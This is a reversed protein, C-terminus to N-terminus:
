KIQILSCWSLINNAFTLEQLLSTCLPLRQLMNAYLCLVAGEGVCTDIFKKEINNAISLSELVKVWGAATQDDARLPM